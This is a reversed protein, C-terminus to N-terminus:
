SFESVATLRHREIEVGLSGAVRDLKEIRILARAVRPEALLLEALREAFTEVLKMRPGAILDQIAEIILDYSVVAEVEDGYEAFFRRVDLTVNFRLRQEVGYEESYAGIEFSTVYDALFIRDHAPGGLGASGDMALKAGDDMIM